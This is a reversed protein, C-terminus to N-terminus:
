ARSWSTRRRVAVRHHFIVSMANELVTFALSSFFCCPSWCCGAQCVERHSSSTAWSTVIVASQGPVLWELYRGLTRLLEAPEVWHSPAIVTLVLLPV